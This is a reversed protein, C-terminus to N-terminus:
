EYEPVRVARDDWYETATIKRSDKGGYYLVTEPLNENVADFDVGWTHAAAIAEALMEDRRCTWLILKSGSLKEEKLRMITSEIPLGIKPWANQCMCGDFDVAIIRQMKPRPADKVPEEGCQTLLHDRMSALARGFHQPDVIEEARFGRTLSHGNKMARVTVDPLGDTRKEVTLVASVGYKQFFNVISTTFSTNM